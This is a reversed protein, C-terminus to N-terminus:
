HGSSPDLTEIGVHLLVLRRHFRGLILGCLILFVDCVRVHLMIVMCLWFYRVCLGLRAEVGRVMLCLFVVGHEAIDQLHELDAVLM